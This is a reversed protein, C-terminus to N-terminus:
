LKRDSNGNFNMKWKGNISVSVTCFIAILDFSISKKLTRDNVYKKKESEEFHSGIQSFFGEASLKAGFTGQWCYCTKCIDLENEFSARCEFFLIMFSPMQNLSFFVFSRKTDIAITPLSSHLGNEIKFFSRSNRHMMIFTTRNWNDYSCNVIWWKHVSFIKWNKYKM